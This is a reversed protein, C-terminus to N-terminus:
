QSAGHCRKFKKGSGCPCEQNRGINKQDFNQNNNGPNAMAPTNSLEMVPTQAQVNVRLITYAIQRNIDDLLRKFLQYGEKKYEVLPDRQGYGRLRVSDRLHDMTDLHEMWLLDIAQLAVMRVVQSYVDPGIEQVKSEYAQQAMQNVADITAFEKDAANAIEQDIAEKAKDPLPFITSVKELIDSIAQQNDEQQAYIESVVLAVETKLLDLVKEKIQENSGGPLDGDQNNVLFQKRMRYIKTRQLNLVDDFELVHKRTDFNLGEIKKQAQELSKSVIGAKIPEDDPLGLSSMLNKMREGGFLRMLDDEMSVFFQSSGPDGQRGSRGRLQNDIRRSEHRETGLVHLGGAARVKEVEEEDVPNGGLFIDVGRGAINTALTIASRFLM